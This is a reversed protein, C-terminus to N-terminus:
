YVILTNNYYLLSQHSFCLGLLHDHFFFDTRKSRSSVTKATERKDGEEGMAEPMLFVIFTGTKGAGSSINVINCFVM